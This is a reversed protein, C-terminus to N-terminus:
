RCRASAGSRRWRTPATASIAPPSQGKAALAAGVCHLTLMKGLEVVDGPIDEFKVNAIYNALGKTYESM